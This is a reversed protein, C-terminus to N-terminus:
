CNRTRADQDILCVNGLVERRRTSGFVLVIQADGV